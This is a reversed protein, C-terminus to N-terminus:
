SGNAHLGLPLRVTFTTGLGVQSIFDISGGHANVISRCIALGLGSGGAERSRAKDARFFREFIRPQDQPTIGAGTDAVSLMTDDGTAALTVNVLGGPQNYRIANVLLNTILESIRTRDANIDVSSLKAEMRIHHEDVLPSVMAICEEVLGNLGFSERRLELKGGDARALVLLSDVLSKMRRSARLCTAMTQRYEDPSRERALALETHSHIIALPTRLEHSADATFRVQREFAKELRLFTENLTQALPNLESHIGRLDIRQSLDSASISKATDSIARINRTIRESLLWGGLLGLGLTGIGAIALIWRLHALQEEEHRMPRGVLIRLGFPASIFAERRGDRFRFQVPRPGDAPGAAPYDPAPPPAIANVAPASSTVVSGDSRWVVFYTEDAESQNIRWLLEKPLNPTVDSRENEGMRANQSAPADAVLPEGSANFRLAPVAPMTASVAWAPPKVKDSIRHGLLRGAVVFASRQLEADATMLQVRAISFYLATGFSVVALLLIAAHWLQLTWRISKLM